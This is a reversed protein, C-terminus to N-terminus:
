AKIIRRISGNFNVSGSCVDGDSVVNVLHDTTQTAKPAPITADAWKPFNGGASGMMLASISIPSTIAPQIAEIIEAVPNVSPRTAPAMASLSPWRRTKIKPNSINAVPLTHLPRHKM